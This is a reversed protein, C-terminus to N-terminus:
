EKMPKVARVAIVLEYDPDHYTLDKKSLDNSALGYLFATSSKVNGYTKIQIRETPFFKLFLTKISLSTFQWYHGWQNMDERSIKSIGAVTVLVIGGPKLTRYLTSIAANTDFIFNLTQTCIICDYHNSILKNEKTIDVVITALPNGAVPHVIDCKKMRRASFRTAYLDQKFELVSGKIDACNEALFQEIFYRDVPLGRDFGWSTSMPHRRRFSGFRVWGIMPWSLLRIINRRINRPIIDRPNIKQM